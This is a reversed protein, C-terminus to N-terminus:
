LETTLLPMSMRLNDRSPVMIISTRPKFAGSKLEVFARESCCLCLFRAAIAVTVVLSVVEMVTLGMLCAGLIFLAEIDLKNRVIYFQSFQFDVAQNPDTTFRQKLWLWIKFHRIFLADFYIVAVALGLSIACAAVLLMPFVPSQLLRRSFHVALAGTLLLAVGLWLGPSISMFRGEQTNRIELYATILAQAICILIGSTLHIAGLAHLASHHTRCM